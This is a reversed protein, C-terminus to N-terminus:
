NKNRLIKRSSKKVKSTDEEALTSNDQIGVYTLKM